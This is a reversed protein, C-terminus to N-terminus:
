QVETQNLRAIHLCIGASMAAFCAAGLLPGGIFLGFLLGAVAALAFGLLGLAITM